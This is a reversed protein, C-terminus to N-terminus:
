RTWTSRWHRHPWHRNGRGHQSTSQVARGDFQHARWSAVTGAWWSESWCESQSGHWQGWWVAESGNFVRGEASSCCRVGSCSWSVWQCTLESVNKGALRKALHEIVLDLVVFVFMCGYCFLSCCLIFGSALNPWRRRGGVQFRFLDIRFSTYLYPLLYTFIFTLFNVLCLFLCNIYWWLWCIFWWGCLVYM